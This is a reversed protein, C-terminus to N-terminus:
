SRRISGEKYFPPRVVEAGLARDRVVIEVRTGTKAASAEVYAMGIGQGTSPSVIGSTVDGVTRGDIRVVYGHRPFGREVLQFGILRRDVGNERARRLADSGFFDGKDLKVVWGLGAELPHHTEDLDNGYLAYGMELRLSDRAGLGVPVLGDTEGAV